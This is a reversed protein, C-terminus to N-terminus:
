CALANDVFLKSILCDATVKLTSSGDMVVFKGVGESSGDVMFYAELPKRSELVCFPLEIKKPMQVASFPVGPRNARFEAAARAFLQDFPLFESFGVTQSAEDTRVIINVVM